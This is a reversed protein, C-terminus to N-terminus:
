LHPATAFNNSVKYSRAVFLPWNICFAWARHKLAGNEDQNEDQAQRFSCQGRRMLYVTQKQKQSLVYAGVIYSLSGQFENDLCTM